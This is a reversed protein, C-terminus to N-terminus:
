FEQNTHSGDGQLRDPVCVTRSVITVSVSVNVTKVKPERSTAIWTALPCSVGRIMAAVNSRSLAIRNVTPKNM